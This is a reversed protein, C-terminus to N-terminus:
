RGAAHTEQAPTTSAPCVTTASALPMPWPYPLSGPSARNQGPGSQAPSQTAGPRVQNPAPTPWVPNQIHGAALGQDQRQAPLCRDLAPAAGLGKRAHAPLSGHRTKDSVRDSSAAAQKRGKGTDSPQPHSPRPSGTVTLTRPSVDRPPAPAGITDHAFHQIPSPLVGVYAAATSGLGAAAVALAAALPLRGRAPRESLSRRASRLAAHSTGPRSALRTFAARAADQGALDGPEAPGAVAALMRALGHIEPPTGPPIPRRELIMDLLPEDHEGGPRGPFFGPMEDQMAGPGSL